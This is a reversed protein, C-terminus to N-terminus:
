EGFFFKYEFYLGTTILILPILFVWWYINLKKLLNNTEHANTQRTNALKSQKANESDFQLQTEQIFTDKIVISSTYNEVISPKFKQQLENKWYNLQELLTKSFKQSTKIKHTSDEDKHKISFMDVIGIDGLISLLDKRRSTKSKDENYTYLNQEMQKMHIVFYPIQDVCNKFVSIIDDLENILEKNNQHEKFFEEKTM